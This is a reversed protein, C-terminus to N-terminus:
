LLPAGNLLWNHVIFAKGVAKAGSYGEVKLCCKLVEYKDYKSM